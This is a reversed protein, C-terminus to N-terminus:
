EDQRPPKNVVLGSFLLLVVQLRVEGVDRLGRSIAPPIAQLVTLDTKKGEVMKNKKSSGEM